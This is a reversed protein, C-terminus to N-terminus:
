INIVHFPVIIFLHSGGVNANESGFEFEFVDIQDLIGNLYM